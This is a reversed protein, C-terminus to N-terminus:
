VSVLHRQWWCAAVWGARDVAERRIDMNGIAEITRGNGSTGVTKRWSERRVVWRWCGAVVWLLALDDGGFDLACRSGLENGALM